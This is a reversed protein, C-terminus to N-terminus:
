VIVEMGSAYAENECIGDITITYNGATAAEAKPTFVSGFLGVYGFVMMVSLLVSLAKKSVPYNSKTHNM